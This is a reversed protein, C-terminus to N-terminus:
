LSTSGVWLLPPHHSYKPHLSVALRLQLIAYFHVSLHTLRLFKKCKEQCAEAMGYFTRMRSDIEPQASMHSCQELSCIMVLFVAM